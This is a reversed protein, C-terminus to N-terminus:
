FLLFTFVKSKTHLRFEIELKLTNRFCYKTHEASTNVSFNGNKSGPGKDSFPILRHGRVGQNKSKAVKKIFKVLVSIEEDFGVM